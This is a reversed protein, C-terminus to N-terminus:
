LKTLDDPPINGMISPAYFPNRPNQSYNTGLNFITNLIRSYEFYALRSTLNKNDDIWVESHLENLRQKIFFLDYKM